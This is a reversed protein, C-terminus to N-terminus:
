SMVEVLDLARDADASVERVYECRVPRPEPAGAYAVACCAACYSKGAVAPAGCVALSLREGSVPFRCQGPRADLFNVPM